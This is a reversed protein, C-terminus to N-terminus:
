STAHFCEYVQCIQERSRVFNEKNGKAKLCTKMLSDAMCDEILFIIFMEFVCWHALM